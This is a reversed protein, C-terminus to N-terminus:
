YWLSKRCEKLCYIRFLKCITVVRDTTLNDDVSEVMVNRSSYKSLFAGRYFTSMFMRDRTRSETVFLLPNQISHNSKNASRDCNSKNLIV